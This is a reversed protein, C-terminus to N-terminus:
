PARRAPRSSRSPDMCILIVTATSKAVLTKSRAAWQWAGVALREGVTVDHWFFAEAHDVAGDGAEAGLGADVEVPEGGGAGPDDLGDPSGVPGLDAHCEGGLLGAASVFAGSDTM